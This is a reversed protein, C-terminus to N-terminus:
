LHKVNKVDKHFYASSSIRDGLICRKDDVCSLSIKCNNYTGVQHLKSEIRKMKYWILNKNFLASVFKEHRFIKVVNRNVGKAKKTEENHVTVLSYMKSKSGVFETIIKGKFEEKMKDIMKKNVPDFIKWDKSYDCLDFLDKEEYFDEYVDNTEIEYVLSNTDTFLLNAGFKRKIYNYHFEHM